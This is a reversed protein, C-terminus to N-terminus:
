SALINVSERWALQRPAGQHYLPSLSFLMVLQLELGISLELTDLLSTTVGLEELIYRGVNWLM